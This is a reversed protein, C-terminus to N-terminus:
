YNILMPYLGGTTTGIEIIQENGNKAYDVGLPGDARTFFGDIMESAFVKNGARNLLFIDSGNYGTSFCPDKAVIVRFQNNGLLSFFYEGGEYQDKEKKSFIGAKKRFDCLDLDEVPTKWW